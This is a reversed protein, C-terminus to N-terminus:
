VVGLKKKNWIDDQDSLFIVEGSSHNLANEFYSVVGHRGTNRFIKIREDGFSELISITQDISGDDSVVIEDDIGLQLLISEVQKNIYKAGNYTAICVSLM